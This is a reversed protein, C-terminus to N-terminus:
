TRIGVYKSDPFVAQHVRFCVLAVAVIRALKKPYVGNALEPDHEVVSQWEKSVTGLLTSRFLRNFIEMSEKPLNEIRRQGASSTTTMPADAGLEPSKVLRPDPVISKDWCM